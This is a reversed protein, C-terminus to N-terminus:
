LYRLSLMNLVSGMMKRARELDTQRRSHGLKITGGGNIKNGLKLIRRYEKKEKM